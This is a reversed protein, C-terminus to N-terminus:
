HKYNDLKVADYRRHARRTKAPASGAALKPLLVVSGYKAVLSRAPLSLLIRHCGVASIILLCCSRRFVPTGDPAKLRAPSM